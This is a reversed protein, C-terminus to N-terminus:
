HWHDDVVHTCGSWRGSGGGRGCHGAYLLSEMLGDARLRSHQRSGTFLYKGCCQSLRQLNRVIVNVKGQWGGDHVLGRATSLHLHSNNWCQHLWPEHLLVRSQWLQEWCGHLLFPLSVTKLKDSEKKIYPILYPLQTSAKYKQLLSAYAM